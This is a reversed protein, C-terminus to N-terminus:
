KNEHKNAKLKLTLWKVRYFFIVKTTTIEEYPLWKPFLEAHCGNSLYKEGLGLLCHHYFVWM